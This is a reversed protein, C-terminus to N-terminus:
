LRSSTTTNYLPDVIVLMPDMALGAVPKSSVCLESM